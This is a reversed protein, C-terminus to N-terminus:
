LRNQLFDVVRRYEQEVDKMNGAGPYGGWRNVGTVFEYVIKNDKVTIVLTYAFNDTTGFVNITMIPKLVFQGADKDDMQVVTKYSKFLIAIGAKVKSFAEDKTLTTDFEYSYTGEGPDMSLRSSEACGTIALLSILLLVIALNCVKM